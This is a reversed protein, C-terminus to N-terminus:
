DNLAEFALAVARDPTRAVGAFYNGETYIKSVVLGRIVTTGTNREAETGWYDPSTLEWSEISRTDPITSDYRIVTTTM